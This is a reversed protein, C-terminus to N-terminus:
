GTHVSLRMEPHVELGTEASEVVKEPVNHPASDIAAPRSFVRRVGNSLLRAIERSRQDASLLTPDDPRM